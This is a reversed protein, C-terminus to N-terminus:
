LLKRQVALFIKRLGLIMYAKLTGWPAPREARSEIRMTGKEKDWDIRKVFNMIGSFAGLDLDFQLDGPEIRGAFCCTIPGVTNNWYSGTGNEVKRLWAFVTKIVTFDLIIESYSVNVRESITVRYRPIIM